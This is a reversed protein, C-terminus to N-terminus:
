CLRMPQSRGAHIIVGTNRYEDLLIDRRIFKEVEARSRIGRLAEFPNELWDTFRIRWSDQSVLNQVIATTELQILSLPM